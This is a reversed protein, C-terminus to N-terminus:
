RYIRFVGEKDVSVSIQLSSTSRQQQDEGVGCMDTGQQDKSNIKDALEKLKEQLQEQTGPLPHVLFEIGPLERM